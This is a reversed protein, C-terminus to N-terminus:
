NLYLVEYVKWLLNAVLLIVAQSVNVIFIGANDLDKM